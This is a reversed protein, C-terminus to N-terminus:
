RNVESDTTKSRVIRNKGQQKAQYLARDASHLLVEASADPPTACVGFSATLSVVGGGAAIRVDEISQRLREALEAGGDEDSEPALVAFEEGGIRAPLDIDRTGQRLVDALTRLAEDGAGHGYRDNITKFDDLDLLVIAVPRGYRASRRLEAELENQFWRRNALGTLSDTVAEYQALAHLRANELAATAQPALTRARGRQEDDFGGPPASLILLVDKGEGESLPILLPEGHTGIEGTRAAERTGDVLLGGAAGAADVMTALVIPLLADRDHRAALAHGILELREMEDILRRRRRRAELVPSLLDALLALALLGAASALVVNRRTKGTASDVISQPLAGVLVFPSGPVARVLARFTSGDISVRGPAGAELTLPKGARAGAVIGDDRAVLLRVGKPGATSGLRQLLARDLRIAVSVRGITRGLDVVDVSRVLDRRAIPHGALRRGAVWISVGATPAVLRALRARDRDAMANQVHPSEAVRSATAGADAALARLGARGAEVTASLTTDVRALDRQELLGDTFWALAALPVALAAVVLAASRLRRDVRRPEQFVSRGQQLTHKVGGLEVVGIATPADPLAACGEFPRIRLVQFLRRQGEAFLGPRCRHRGYSLSVTRHREGDQESEDRGQGDVPGPDALM